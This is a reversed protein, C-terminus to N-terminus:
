DTKVQIFEASIELQIEDSILPASRSIGWDSRKIRGRAHFGSVWRGQYVPNFSALPHEGTFNWTVELTVPKEINRITLTGELTGARPGTPVIRDSKFTIRSFQEADFYDASKLAADLATVGTSISDVLAAIEVSGTEPSTPSFRLTGFVDRIEGSQRSVGLHDWSFRVEVQEPDLRWLDGIVVPPPSGANDDSTGQPLTQAHVTSILRPLESRLGTDPSLAAGVILVLVALMVASFGHRAARVAPWRTSALAGSRALRNGEM